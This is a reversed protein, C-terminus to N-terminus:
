KEGRILITTSNTEASNSTQGIPKSSSDTALKKLHQRVIIRALIRLGRLEPSDNSRSNIEAILTKETKM